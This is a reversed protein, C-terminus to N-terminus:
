SAGAVTGQTGVLVPELRVHVIMEHRALVKLAGEGAAEPSHIPFRKVHFDRSLAVNPLPYPEGRKGAHTLVTKCGGCAMAQARSNGRRRALDEALRARVVPRRISGFQQFQNARAGRRPAIM